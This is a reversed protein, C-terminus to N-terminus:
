VFAPALLQHQMVQSAVSATDSGSISQLGSPTASMKIKNYRIVSLVEVSDTELCSSAGSQSSIATVEEGGVPTIRSSKGLAPPEYPKQVVSDVSDASRRMTDEKGRFSGTCDIINVLLPQSRRHDERSGFPLCGEQRGEEKPRVKDFISSLIGRAREGEGARRECYELPPEPLDFDPRLEAAEREAPYRAKVQETATALWMAQGNGTERGQVEEAKYEERRVPEKFEERRGPPEKHDERRGPDKYEERRGQQEKYEERRAPEKGEERRAGEKPGPGPVLCGERSPTRLLQKLHGGAHDELGPGKRGGVGNSAEAQQCREGRQKYEPKIAQIRELIAVVRVDEQGRAPPGSAAPEELEEPGPPMMEPQIREMVATISRIYPELQQAIVLLHRLESKLAVLELAQDSYVAQETKLRILEQQWRKEFEVKHDDMM